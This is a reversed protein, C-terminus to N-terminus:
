KRDTMLSSNIMQCIWWFSCGECEEKNFTAPQPVIRDYLQGHLREADVVGCVKQTIIILGSM